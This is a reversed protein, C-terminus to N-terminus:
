APPMAPMDELATTSTLVEGVIIPLNEKEMEMLRRYEGKWFEARKKNENYLQMCMERLEGRLQREMKPDELLGIQAELEKFAKILDQLSDM